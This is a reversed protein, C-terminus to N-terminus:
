ISSYLDIIPKLAVRVNQKEDERWDSLPKAEFLQKLSTNIKGVYAIWHTSVKTTREPDNESRQASAHPPLIGILQAGLKAVDSPWLELELQERNRALSIAKESKDASIGLSEIWEVKNVGGKIQERGLLIMDGCDALRMIAARANQKATLALANSEAYAVRIENEIAGLTTPVIQNKNETEM